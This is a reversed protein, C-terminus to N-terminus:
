KFKTICCYLYPALFIECFRYYFLLYKYKFFMTKYVSTVIVIIYWAYLVAFVLMDYQRMLKRDRRQLTLIDHYQLSSVPFKCSVIHYTMKQQKICRISNNNCTNKFRYNKWLSARKYPSSHSIGCKPTQCSRFGKVFKWFIKRLQNHRHGWWVHLHLPWDTWLRRTPTPAHTFNDGDLM